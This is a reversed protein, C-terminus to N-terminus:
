RQLRRPDFQTQISNIIHPPATKSNSYIILGMNVGTGDVNAIAETAVAQSWVFENWDDINWSGGGALIDVDLPEDVNSNGYDFDARTLLSVPEPCEAEISVRRFRKRMRSNGYHHYPLKIHAQIERGDLSTGKDLQYIFGDESGALLVEEGGSAEGSCFCTLSVGYDVETFGLVNQGDLTCFVGTGDSFYLRYQSKKRVVISGATIGKRKQILPAILRDFGNTSFNGYHQVAALQTLGRDDLYRLRGISQLTGALAGASTSVESLQWDAASSGYLIFTKNRTLIALSGAEVVMGSVSDGTAIEGAGLVPSWEALPDGIPSHQVSGNFSLFLHQKHAAIHSPKDDTMGTSIDTWTTGDFQFAKHVGSVGYMFLTETSGTFNANVFSYKGGPTLGTKRAVWGVPSSEWMTASAGDEINRFAFYRGNYIWVGLVSGSGPVAGILTRLYDAKALKYAHYNADVEADNRLVSQVTQGQVTDGEFSGTMNAVAVEFPNIGIVVGTAGSNGTILSGLTFGSSDVVKLVHFDGDTPSTKGDLREFGDISKLGHQLPVEYNLCGIPAGPNRQLSGTVLDLGGQIPIHKMSM